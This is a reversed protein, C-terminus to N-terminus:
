RGDLPRRLRARNENDELIDRNGSKVLFEEHLCSETFPRHFNSSLIALLFCRNGSVSCRAIYDRGARTENEWCGHELQRAFWAHMARDAIVYGIALM